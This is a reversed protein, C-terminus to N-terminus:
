FSMTVSHRIYVAPLWDSEKISLSVFGGAGAVLHDVGGLPHRLLPIPITLHVERLVRRSRRPTVSSAGVNRSSRGRRRPTASVGVARARLSARRGDAFGGFAHAAQRWRRRPSPLIRKAAVEGRSGM